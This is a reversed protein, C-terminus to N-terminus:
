EEDDEMFGVWSVFGYMFEPFTCAGDSNFDLEKFRAELLTPDKNGATAFLARKLESM